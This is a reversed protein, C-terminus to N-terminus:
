LMCECPPYEDDNWLKSQKEDIISKLTANGKLFVPTKNNLGRQLNYHERVLDELVTAKCFLDPHRKRLEKFDKVKQFPCIFCGSKQPIPLGHDRIIKECDKRGIESEILPFRNEVGNKHNIRARHQEDYDFGIMMFCPTKVYRYITRLKFKDTCWRFYNPIIKKYLCYQYLDDFGETKETPEVDPILITIPPYGNKELWGQFLELYQYTEPWDTNHHVFISEFEIELDILHLHLAVSNVGGGFSLYNRM